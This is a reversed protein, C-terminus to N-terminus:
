TTQNQEMGAYFHVKGGVSAVLVTVFGIGSTDDHRMYGADRTYFQLYVSDFAPAFLLRRPLM